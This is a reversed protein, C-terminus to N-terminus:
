PSGQQERFDRNHGAAIRQSGVRPKAGCLPYQCYARDFRVGSRALADVNPTKALPHGYCGLANNMDDAAIFLVNPREAATKRALLLTPAFILSRRTVKL